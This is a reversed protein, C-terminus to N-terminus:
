SNTLQKVDKLVYRNEEVGRGHAYMSRNWWSLGASRQSGAVKAVSGEEGSRQEICGDRLINCRGGKTSAGRDLSARM